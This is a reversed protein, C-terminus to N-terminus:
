KLDDVYAISGLCAVRQDCSLDYVYAIPGTREENIELHNYEIGNFKAGSPFQSKVSQYIKSHVRDSVPQADVDHQINSHELLMIWLKKM